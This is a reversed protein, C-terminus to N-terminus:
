INMLIRNIKKLTKNEKIGRGSMRLTLEKKMRDSDKAMKRERLASDISLGIVAGAPLALPLWRKVGRINRQVMDKLGGGVRKRMMKRSVYGGNMYRKKVITHVM